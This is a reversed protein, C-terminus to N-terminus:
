ENQKRELQKVYKEWMQVILAYYERQDRVSAHPSALDQTELVDGARLRKDLDRLKAKIESLRRRAALLSAIDQTQVPDDTM